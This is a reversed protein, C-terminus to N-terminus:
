MRLYSPLPYTRGKKRPGGLTRVSTTKKQLSISSSMNPTLNPFDSVEQDFTFYVGRNTVFGKFQTTKGFLYVALCHEFLHASIFDENTSDFYIIEKIETARTIM